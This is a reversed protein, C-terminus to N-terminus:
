TLKQTRHLPELISEPCSGEEHTWSQDGDGLDTRHESGQRIRCFAQRIRGLSETFYQEEAGKGLRLYRDMGHCDGALSSHTESRVYGNPWSPPTSTSTATCSSTGGRPSVFRIMKGYRDTWAEIMALNKRLMTRDRELTRRRISAFLATAGIKFTLIGAAISTDDHYAWADEIVRCPEM